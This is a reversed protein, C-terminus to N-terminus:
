GAILRAIKALSREKELIQEDSLNEAHEEGSLPSVELTFTGDFGIDFLGEALDAWDINGEYPPLHADKDGMNDHVHIIKVYDKAYRVEDGISGGFLNTHGTDFCMALGKHDAEKLFDVIDKVTSLPFSMFPMNELCVTVGLSQGVNALAKYFKLNIERVLEPEDPSDSGFPMLPHVAMYKAGLHHAIVMAKTMKEFREARDDETGDKPPYRWPGHIQGVTIGVDNLKRRLATVQMFFEDDRAAYIEGETDTLNFDVSTYGDAAMRRVGEDIGYRDIYYNGIGLKM